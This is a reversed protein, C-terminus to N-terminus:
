LIDDVLIMPNRFSWGKKDDFHLPLRVREGTNAVNTPMIPRGKLFTEFPVLNSGFFIIHRTILTDIPNSTIEFEQNVVSVYWYDNLYYPAMNMFDHVHSAPFCYISYRTLDFVVLYKPNPGLDEVWNNYFTDIPISVSCSYCWPPLLLPIESQDHLSRISGDGNEPEMNCVARSVGSQDHLSQIPRDGNEPEMKVSDMNGDRLTESQNYLLPQILGDGNEPEMRSTESQDLLLRSSDCHLMDISSSRTGGAHDGV